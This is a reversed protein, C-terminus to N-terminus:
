LLPESWLYEHSVCDLAIAKRQMLGARAYAAPRLTQPITFIVIRVMSVSLALMKMIDVTTFEWEQTIAGCCHGKVDVAGWTM